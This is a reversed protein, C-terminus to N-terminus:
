ACGGRGQVGRLDRAEYDGYGGGHGCALTEKGGFDTSPGSPQLASRSPGRARRTSRQPARDTDNGVELAEGRLVFIHGVGHRQEVVTSCLTQPAARRPCLCAPPGGGPPARRRARVIIFYFFVHTTSSLRPAASASRTRVRSAAFGAGDAARGRTGQYPMCMSASHTRPRVTPAIALRSRSSATTIALAAAPRRAANALRRRRASPAAAFATAAAKAAAVAAAVAVARAKAAPAPLTTQRRHRRPPPPPYFRLFTRATPARWAGPLAHLAAHAHGYRCRVAHMFFDGGDWQDLPKCGGPSAALREVRALNDKPLIAVEVAIAAASATCRRSKAGHPARALPTTPPSSSPSSSRPTGGGVTRRM